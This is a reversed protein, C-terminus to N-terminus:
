LEFEKAFQDFENFYVAALEFGESYTIHPNHIHLERAMSKIEEIRKERNTDDTLFDETFLGLYIGIEAKETFNLDNEITDKLAKLVDSIQSMPLNVKGGERKSTKQLIPHMTKIYDKLNEQEKKM